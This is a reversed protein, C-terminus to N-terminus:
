IKSKLKVLLYYLLSNKLEALRDTISEIHKCLSVANIHVLLINEPTKKIEVNLEETTYYDSLQVDEKDRFVSNPCLNYIENIDFSEIESANLCIQNDLNQRCNGYLCNTCYYPNEINDPSCYALFQEQTLDTCKRHVWEDCLTCCISDQVKDKCPSFCVLCPYKYTITRFSAFKPTLKTKKLTNTQHTPLSEFNLGRSELDSDSEDAYM